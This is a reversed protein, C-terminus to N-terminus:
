YRAIQRGPDSIELFIVRSSGIGIANVSQCYLVPKLTTQFLILTPWSDFIYLSSAYLTFSAAWSCKLTEEQPRYILNCAQFCIMYKLYFRWTKDILIFIFFLDKTNYVETDRGLFYWFTWFCLSWNQESPDLNASFDLTCNYYECAICSMYLNHLWLVDPLKKHGQTHNYLAM